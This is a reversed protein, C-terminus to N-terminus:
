GWEWSWCSAVSAISLTAKFLLYTSLSCLSDPTPVQTPILNKPIYKSFTRWIAWFILRLNWVFIYFKLDGLIIKILQNLASGGNSIDYLVFNFEYHQFSTTKGGNQFRLFNPRGKVAFSKKTSWCYNYTIIVIYSNIM